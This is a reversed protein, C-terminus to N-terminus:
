IRRGRKARGRIKRLVFFRVSRTAMTMMLRTMTFCDDDDDVHSKVDDVYDRADDNDYDCQDEDEDDEDDEDEDNKIKVKTRMTMTFTKRM